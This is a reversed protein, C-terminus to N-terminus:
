WTWSPLGLHWPRTERSTNRDLALVRQQIDEPAASPATRATWREAVEIEAGVLERHAHVSYAVVLWAAVLAVTFLALGRKIPAGTRQRVGIVAWLVIWLLYFKMREFLGEVWSARDSWFAYGSNDRHELFLEEIISELELPDKVNPYREWITLLDQSRQAAFLDDPSSWLLVPPTNNGVWRAMDNAIVMALLILFLTLFPALKNIGLAEATKSRLLRLIGRANSAVLLRRSGGLVAPALYIALGVLLGLHLISPFLFQWFKTVAEPLNADM